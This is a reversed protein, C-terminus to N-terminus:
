IKDGRDLQPPPHYSSQHAGPMWGPLGCHYVQFSFIEAQCKYTPSEFKTTMQATDQSVVCSCSLQIHLCMQYKFVSFCTNLKREIKRKKKKGRYQSEQCDWWVENRRIRHSRQTNSNRADKEITQMQTRGASTHFPYLEYLKCTKHLPLTM